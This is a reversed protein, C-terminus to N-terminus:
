MLMVSFTDVIGTFYMLAASLIILHGLRDEFFLCIALVSWVLYVIPSNRDFYANFAGAALMILMSAGLFFRNKGPTLRFGFYLIFLYMGYNLINDVIYIM